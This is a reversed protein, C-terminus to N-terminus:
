LIKLLSGINVESGLHKSLERIFTFTVFINFIPLIMGIIILMYAVHDISGIVYQVLIQYLLGGSVVSLLLAIASTFVLGGTGWGPEVSLSTFFWCRETGDLKCEGGTIDVPQYETMMAAASVNMMAPYAIYFGIAIAILAGGFGRSLPFSRLFIGAPLFLALMYQKIFCLLFLHIFWEGFVTTVLIILMNLFDMLPRMMYSTQFSFGALGGVSIGVNLNGAMSVFMNTATLAALDGTVTAGVANAFAMAHDILSTPSGWFMNSFLNIGTNAFLFLVVIIASVLTQYLNEKAWAINGPNQLAHGGMYALALLFTSAALAVATLTIWDVPSAFSCTASGMGFNYFDSAGQGWPTWTSFAVGAFLLAFFAIVLIKKM